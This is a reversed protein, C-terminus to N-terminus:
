QRPLEKTDTPQKLGWQWKPSEGTRWMIALFGLTVLFLPLGFAYILETKSPAAPLRAAIGIVLGIFVGTVAWGQWTVPTWGWGYLKRKFWYGQPNDTYYTKYQKWNM